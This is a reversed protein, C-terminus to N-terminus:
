SASTLVIVEVIRGAANGDGYLGDPYYSGLVKM